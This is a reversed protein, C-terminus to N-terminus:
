ARARAADVDARGESGAGIGVNRLNLDLVFQLLRDGEQRRFDHLLSDIDGFPLRLKQENEREVVRASAIGVDINGIIQRGM